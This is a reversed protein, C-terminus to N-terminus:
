IKGLSASIQGTNVGHKEQYNGQHKGWRSYPYPHHLLSVNRQSVQDIHSGGIVSSLTM